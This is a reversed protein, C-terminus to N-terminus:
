SRSSPSRRSANANSCRSCRRSRRTRAYTASSSRSLTPQVRADLPQSRRRCRSVRRLHRALRRLADRRGRRVPPHLRPEGAPRGRALRPRRRLDTRRQSQRQDGAHPDPVRRPSPEGNDAHNPSARRAIRERLAAFRLLIRSSCLEVASLPVFGECRPRPLASRPDPILNTAARQGAPRTTSCRESGNLREASRVVNTREANPTWRRIHQPMSVRRRNRPPEAADSAVTALPHMGCM